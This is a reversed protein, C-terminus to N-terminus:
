PSAPKVKPQPWWPPTMDPWKGTVTARTKMIERAMDPHEHILDRLHNHCSTLADRRRERHETEDTLPPANKPVYNTM